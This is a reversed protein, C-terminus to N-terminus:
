QKKRKKLKKLTKIISFSDAGSDLLTHESAGELGERSTKPSYSPCKAIQILETQKCKRKCSVCLSNIKSVLDKYRCKSCMKQTTPTKSEDGCVKCKYLYEGYMSRM